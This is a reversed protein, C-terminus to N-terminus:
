DQNLSRNELEEQRVSVASESKELKDEISNGV